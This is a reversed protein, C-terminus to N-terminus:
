HNFNLMRRSTCGPSKSNYGMAPLVEDPAVCYTRSPPEGPLKGVRQVERVPSVDKERSTFFALLGLM